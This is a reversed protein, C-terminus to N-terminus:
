AQILFLIIKSLYILRFPLYWGQVYVSEKLRLFIFCVVPLTFRFHSKCDLFNLNLCLTVRDTEFLIYIGILRFPAVALM